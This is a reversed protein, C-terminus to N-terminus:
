RAGETIKVFVDQALDIDPLHHKRATVKIRVASRTLQVLKVTVLTSGEQFQLYGRVNDEEKILGRSRAVMMASNWLRGYAKDTDGQITDKSVACAGLAGAAGGIILPVCGSVGLLLAVGFFVSLAPQAQKM